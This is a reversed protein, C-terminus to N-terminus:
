RQLTELCAALSAADEVQLCTCDHGKPLIKKLLGTLVSKPGVEIFTTVGQQRMALITDYWKVMAAIQRSMIARIAAPDDEPAATVNFFIKGQPAHFTIQEM